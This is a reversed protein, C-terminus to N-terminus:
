SVNQGNISVGSFEASSGFDEGTIANNQASTKTNANELM